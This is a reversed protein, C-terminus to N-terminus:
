LSSCLYSFEEENVLVLTHKILHEPIQGRWTSSNLLQFVVFLFGENVKCLDILTFWYMKVYRQYFMRYSM